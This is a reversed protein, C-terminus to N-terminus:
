PVKFDFKCLNYQLHHYVKETTYVVHINRNNEINQLCSWHMLDVASCQMSDNIFTTQIENAM